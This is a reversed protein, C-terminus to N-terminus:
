KEEEEATGEPEEPRRRVLYWVGAAGALIVVILVIIVVPDAAFGIERPGAQMEGKPGPILTDSVSVGVHVPERTVQYRAPITGNAPDSGSLNFDPDTVVPGGAPSGPIVAGAFPLALVMVVFLIAYRRM